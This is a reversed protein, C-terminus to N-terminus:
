TSSFRAMSDGSRDDAFGLIQDAVEIRAEGSFGMFVKYYSLWSVLAKNRSPLGLDRPNLADIAVNDKAMEDKDIV